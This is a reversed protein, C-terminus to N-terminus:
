PLRALFRDIAALAEPEDLHPSHGRGPIVAIELDPKRRVMEGLVVEDLMDSVAGRIALIPVDRLRDWAPWLDSASQRERFGRGYEPDMDPAIKGDPRRRFTRSTRELYEADTLTVGAVSRAKIGQTAAEMTDFELPLGMFEQVRKQGAAGMVPGADNIIGALLVDPRHDAIQIIAIGGVSTGLLIVKALGEKALLELLDDRHEVFTYHRWDKSYDSRGHGRWDLCLVRRDRAIHPALEEYVRSNQTTGSLCIVPTKTSGPSAYDRYYLNLGDRTHLQKEVFGTM